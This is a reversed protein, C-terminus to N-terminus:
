GCLFARLGGAPLSKMGAGLLPCFPATYCVIHRLLRVGYVATFQIQLLRFEHFLICLGTHPAAFAALRIKLSFGPLVFFASRLSFTNERPLRKTQMGCVPFRVHTLNDQTYLIRRICFIKRMNPSEAHLFQNNGFGNNEPIPTSQQRSFTGTKEVTFPM